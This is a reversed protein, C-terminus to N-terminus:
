AASSVKAATRRAPSAKTAAARVVLLRTGMSDTGALLEARAGEGVASTLLVLAVGIAVGGVALLSRTRNSLVIRLSGLLVRSLKM